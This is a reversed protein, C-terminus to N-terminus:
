KILVMRRSMTRGEAQLRYFYVGSALSSGSEDQGNWIVEHGGANLRGDALTKVVRGNVDFVQLSVPGAQELSFKIATQPNFPNPHNQGLETRFSVSMGDDTATLDFIASLTFDDVLAEVLSGNVDDNATFRMVVTGPVAFYDALAFSVEVWANSSANTNEVDTWTAGDDNSIEVLWIDEPDDNTGLDNSYWRWYSVMVETANELDFRPSYLVTKGGDVDDSGVGSSAAGTVWCDTGAATHDDEPQCIEGGSNAAQHPDAREWRGTGATDEGLGGGHWATDSEMEDVFTQDVQFYHLSAPANAPSYGSAGQDNEAYLYYEVVSGWTQGPITGVYDDGGGAAMAVSTFGGGDVRYSLSVTGPDIVGGGLSVAQGTVEYGNSQDGSYPNGDHYVFVGVLIEPCDFGHNQAAECFIAHHPTGDGLDGNDDDAFFTAYVQDPQTSPHLLVRGFHWREGSMQTGLGNWNMGGGYLNQLAIMADWNFGAIVQGAYHIEQGVVDGPYSLTNDSDRIGGTCNNLYFGRGIVSDQTILNGLIDGNGEGLGQGGQGGLIANQVGHGFEHHVVQHMEGTNACGGGERYFHINGDWYANCTSNLSVQAGIQQNIYGFGADFQRIFDRTESVGQMVDREDQKSNTADWDVTFPVGDAATGSFFAEPYQVNDYVDCYPGEMDCSVTVNGGAGAITWDGNEDSIASGLGSVDIRLYPMAKQLAAGDCYGWEYTDAETDGGYAFHIDNYRWLIEGTHADMHTVWIGVPDATRVRLKWVLHHEVETESIPYPLIMLESAGDMSDTAQDFGVAAKALQIASAESISPSTNLDIGEYYDSGMLMLKGDDSFAIRVRADWVDLGNYTQQYHAVWKGMANPTATLRLNALDAKLEARNESIVQEALQALQAASDISQAMKVSNGHVWHPTGTQPNWSFVEWRQGFRTSIDRSAQLSSMDMDYGSYGPLDFEPLSIELRDNEGTPQFALASGFLLTCLALTAIGRRLIQGFM